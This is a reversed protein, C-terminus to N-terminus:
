DGEYYPCDRLIHGADTGWPWPCTCIEPAYRQRYIPVGRRQLDEVIGQVLDSTTARGDAALLEAREALLTELQHVGVDTVRLSLSRAAKVTAALNAAATEAPTSM